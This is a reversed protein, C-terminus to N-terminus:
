APIVTISGDRELVAFKVQALTELGQHERAAAMIDELDVGSREMREEIPAGDRVLILPRGEAVSQFWRWRRGLFLLGRDLCLLTCILLFCNTVSFDEGLLAQQTTEAFILLMVFDFTTIQALSRQGFIRFLLLLVLYVASARLVADM